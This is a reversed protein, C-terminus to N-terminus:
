DQAAVTRRVPAQLDHQARQGEDHGDGSEVDLGILHDRNEVGYAEEKVYVCTLPFNM